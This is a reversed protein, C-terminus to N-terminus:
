AVLQQAMPSAQSIIMIGASVNLFLMVLAALVAVHGHSGERHLRLHHRGQFGGLAAGLGGPALGAAPERLVARRRRGGVLYVIGLTWFTAAVGYRIIERAAIPSMVLAGAGYGCVAVGTM